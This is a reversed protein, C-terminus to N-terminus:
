KKGSKKAGAKNARTPKVGSPVKDAKEADPALTADEDVPEIHQAKTMAAMFREMLPAIKERGYLDLEGKEDETLAKILTEAQAAFSESQTKFKDIIAKIKADSDGAAEVEQVVKEVMAVLKDVADIAAKMPATPPPDHPDGQPYLAAKFARAAPRLEKQVYAKAATQDNPGFTSWAPPEPQVQLLAARFRAHLAEKAADGHTHAVSLTLQRIQNSATDVLAKAQALAPSEAEEDPTESTEAAAAPEVLHQLEALKPLLNQQLWADVVQKDAKNLKDYIATVDHEMKALEEQMSAKAKRVVDAAAAGAKVEVVLGDIARTTQELRKIIQKIATPNGAAETEPKATEAPKAVGPAAKPHPEAALACPGACLVFFALAAPAFWFDRSTTQASNAAMEARM